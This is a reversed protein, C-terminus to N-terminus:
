LDLKGLIHFSFQLLKKCYHNESHPGTIGLPGQPSNMSDKNNECFNWEYPFCYCHTHNNQDLKEYVKQVSNQFM